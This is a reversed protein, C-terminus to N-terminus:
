KRCVVRAVETVKLLGALGEPVEGGEKIWELVQSKLGAANYTEGVLHGLGQSRLAACVQDQSADPAKNVFRDTRLYLLRGCCRINQIGAGGMEEMLLPEIEALRQKISKEEGEVDALRKSQEVYEAALRGLEGPVTQTETVPPEQELVGAGFEESM